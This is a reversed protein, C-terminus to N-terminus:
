DLARERSYRLWARSALWALVAILVLPGLVALGVIAVGAAIALIHGADGLADSVGWSSGGDAADAPAGTEIRLSVRSFTARRRLTTLRSRLTAVQRREARLEAEVAARKADTETAALQALLSEVRAQSDQLREGAGVTPATIDETAEHRARVEAIASFAALADGLRASPILLDFEAGADGAAGDRISSSLVIGDHAHVAEFVKAADDGVEAPDAGLVMEASREIDRHGAQSAFPGTRPRVAESMAQPASREGSSGVSSSPAAPLDSPSASGEREAASGEGSMEEPAGGFTTGGSNLHGPSAPVENRPETTVVVATAIAIAAVATAGAPLLMQRPAIGWLRDLLRGLPSGGLPPQPPFGAGAREDLEAAFAPRPTPRLARLEAILNVDDRPQEM